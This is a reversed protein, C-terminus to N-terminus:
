AGSYPQAMIIEPAMYAMTGLKTHLFGTGTRGATPAAFGFDALKVNFEKDLM